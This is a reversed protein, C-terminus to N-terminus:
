HFPWHKTQRAYVVYGVIAIVVVAVVIWATTTM